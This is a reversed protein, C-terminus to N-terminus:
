IAILQNECIIRSIGRSLLIPAVIKFVSTNPVKIVKQEKSCLTKATKIDSYIKITKRNLDDEPLFEWEPYERLLKIQLEINKDVIMYLIEPFNVADLPISSLDKQLHNDIECNLPAIEVFSQAIFDKNNIENLSSNKVSLDINENPEKTLYNKNNELVEKYKNEGLIKKLHRTITLKTIKFKNQIFQINEGSIFIEKIELIEKKTLRKAM